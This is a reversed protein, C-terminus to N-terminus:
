SAKDSSIDEVKPNGWPGIIRYSYSSTNAMVQHVAKDAVWTVAGVIPNFGTAITAIVPLSSTANVIVGLELNITKDVLNITGRSKIDAVAGKTALDQTTISGNKFVFHGIMSDFSYGQRDLDSTQLFLHRVSVLTLLKGLDLKQNTAQSLNVIWGSGLRLYLDGLVKQLSFDFPSGNWKLNFTVFGTTGILSSDINLHQLLQKLNDTAVSGSCNTLSGTPTMIWTGSMDGHLLDSAFSVKNINLGDAIKNANISVPGFDRQEVKLDNVQVQLAPFHRPDMKSNQKNSATNKQNNDLISDSIFLRDFSGVVPDTNLNFPISFNGAIPASTIQLNYASPLFSLGITVGNLNLGFGTFQGFQINVKKILTKIKEDNNTSPATANDWLPQWDAVNFKALKGDIVLGSGNPITALQSGFKVNGRDIGFPANDDLQLATSLVNGYNGSIITPKDAGFGITMAFPVTDMAVKQLPAPYGVSIGLLNSNIQLLVQMNYKQSMPIIVNGQIPTSGQIPLSKLSPLMGYLSPVSVTQQFAITALPVGNKNTTTKIYLSVPSGLSVAQIKQALLSQQTFALNGQIQDLSYNQSPFLIQNNNLHLVGNVQTDKSAQLPINLGLDLSVPGKLQMNNLMGALDKRLPSNQLTQWITKGRGSIHSSILLNMPQGQQIRPLVLSLTDINNDGLKGTSLQIQMQRGTFTLTGDLDTVDPWGDAYHIILDKLTANVQFTGQQKKDFPFQALNGNLVVNGTIQKGGAFAAQLWKMTHPPIANKPLYNPIQTPSDFQYNALLNVTPSGQGPNWQGSMKATLQLDSNSLAINNAQAVWNNGQKQWTLNAALNNLFFPKAFMKGFDLGANDSAISLSGSNPHWEAQGKLHQIGPYSQWPKTALQSFSFKILYPSIGAATQNFGVVLNRLDGSPSLNKIQQKVDAPLYQNHQLLSSLDGLNLYSLLGYWQAVNNKNSAQRYSVVSSVNNWVAHPGIVNLHNASAQWGYQTPQWNFDGSIAQFTQKSKDAASLLSLNYLNVRASSSQWQGHNRNLWVEGNIQGGVLQYGVASYSTLFKYDAVNVSQLKAYVEWDSQQWSLANSHTQIILNLQSTNQGPFDIFTTLKHFQGLNQLAMSEIVFNASGYQSDQYNIKIDRLQINPQALLWASAKAFDVSPGSSNQQLSLDNIVWQGNAQRTVSLKVGELSMQSPIVQKALLSKILNISIYFKGFHLVEASQGEPYINIDNLRIQPQAGEWALAVQSIKVPSGLLQSAWQDVKDIKANLFPTIIRTLTFLTAFVLLIVALMYLCYHYIRALISQKEQDM